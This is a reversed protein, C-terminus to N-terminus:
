GIVALRGNPRQKSATDERRGQQGRDICGGVRGLGLVVSGAGSRDVIWGFVWVGLVSLPPRCDVCVVSGGVWGQSGPGYGCMMGAVRVGAAGASAVVRSPPASTYRRAHWSSHTCGSSASSAANSPWTPHSTPNSPSSPATVTVIRPSTRESWQLTASQLQNSRITNQTPPKHAKTMGAGRWRRWVCCLLVFRVKARQGQRQTVQGLLLRVPRRM